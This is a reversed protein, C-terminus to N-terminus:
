TTYWGRLWVDSTETAIKKKWIVDLCRAASAPGQMAYQMSKLFIRGEKRKFIAVLVCLGNYTSNKKRKWISVGVSSSRM